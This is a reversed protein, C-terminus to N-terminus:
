SAPPLKKPPASRKLEAIRLRLYIIALVLAYIALIALVIMIIASVASVVSFVPAANVPAANRQVGSQLSSTSTCGSLTMLFAVWAVTLAGARPVRFPKGTGDETIAVANASNGSNDMKAGM